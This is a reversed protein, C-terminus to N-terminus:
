TESCGDKSGNRRFFLLTKNRQFIILATIGTNEYHTVAECLVPSFSLFFGGWGLTEHAMLVPVLPPHPLSFVGKALKLVV